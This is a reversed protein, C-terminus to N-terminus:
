GVCLPDTKTTKCLLFRNEGRYAPPPRAYFDDRCVAVKGGGFFRKKIFKAFFFDAKQLFVLCKPSTKVM